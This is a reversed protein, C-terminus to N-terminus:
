NRAAYAAIRQVVITIVVTKEADTNVGDGLWLLQAIAGAAITTATWWKVTPFLRRFLRRRRQRDFARQADTRAARNM